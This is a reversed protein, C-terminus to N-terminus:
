REYDPYYYTLIFLLIVFPVTYIEFLMMFSLDALVTLLMLSYRDGVSLARRFSVVFMTLYLGLVIVGGYILMALIANHPGVAFSSMNSEYWDADPFGYGFLPSEAIINLASAWMDTRNTFTMDKGLVDIIIWRALENNEFGKGQFCVFVEFLVTCVLIGYVAIRLLKKSPVLLLVLLLAIGFLATSSNVIVLIAACVILLPIFNVWFWRSIKLCLLNVTVATLLIPAMQNYNGGLLYGASEGRDLELWKEPHSLIDWLGAYISFTLGILLGILLASQRHSYYRFLMLPVVIAMSAFFWNKFDTGSLISSALIITLFGIVLLEYKTMYGHRLGLWLAIVASLLVLGLLIYSPAYMELASLALSQQVAWIAMMGAPIFQMEELRIKFDIKQM